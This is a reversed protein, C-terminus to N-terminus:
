FKFKKPTFIVHWSCIYNSFQLEIMCLLTDSVFLYVMECDLAFLPSNDSVEDTHNTSVINDDDRLPYNLSVMKTKSVLFSSRGILHITSVDHNFFLM